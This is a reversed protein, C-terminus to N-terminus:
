HTAQWTWPSQSRTYWWQKVRVSVGRPYETATGIWPSGSAIARCRRERWMNWCTISPTSTPTCWSLVRFTYRLPHQSLQDSLKARSWRGWTFPLGQEGVSIILPPALRRLTHPTDRGCLAPGILPLTLEGNLSPHSEEHWHPTPDARCPGEYVHNMVHSWLAGTTVHDISLLVSGMLTQVMSGSRAMLLM